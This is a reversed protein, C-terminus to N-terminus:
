HTQKAIISGKIKAYQTPTLIHKTLLDRKTAYPRGAIIKDAIADGIVPLKALDEKTATNIDVMAAMPTAPKPRTGHAASKSKAPAATGAALPSSVACLTLLLTAITIRRLM